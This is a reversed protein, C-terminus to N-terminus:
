QGNWNIFNKLLQLGADASKEPHAQIAFLNDKAIASTFTQGHTTTGVTIDNQQPVVYYSHVFYFRQNQEINHWLPHDLTQKIQNWGMHPIKLEPHKETNIKQVKGQLFGLCDTGDNEDSSTMLIQLGMCIGLFPKEAVADKLAHTMGTNNLAEMCAKAAGQGPFIIADASRIDEAKNTILIKTNSDTVHEAAKAVSRLNGMGYDVVAILKSM